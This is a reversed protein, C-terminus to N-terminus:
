LAEDETGHVYALFRPALPDGVLGQAADRMLARMEDIKATLATAQSVRAVRAEIMADAQAYAYKAIEQESHLDETDTALFAQMAACAFFDRDTM